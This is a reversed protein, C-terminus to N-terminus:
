GRGRRERPLEVGGAVARLQRVEHVVELVAVVQEPVVVGDGVVGVCSAATLAMAEFNSPLSSVSLNM